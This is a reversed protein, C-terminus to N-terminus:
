DVVKPSLKRALAAVARAQLQKVAGESKGLIRAVDQIPMDSGFRLSLVHRQEETLDQMARKVDEQTLKRDVIDAPDHDASILEEDLEVQPAQYAKRHHDSVVRAAVGYLWGRLSNQPANKDRLATLLRTFVESTLDEATAHDSVRFAIYRFISAYYIDHIRA